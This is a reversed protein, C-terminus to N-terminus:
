LNFNSVESCGLWQYRSPRVQEVKVSSVKAQLQVDIQRKEELKQDGEASRKENEEMMTELFLEYDKLKHIQCFVTYQLLLIVM